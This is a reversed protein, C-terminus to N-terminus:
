RAPQTLAERGAAWPASADFTVGGADVKVGARAFVAEYDPFGDSAFQNRVAESFVTTGTLEDLRAIVEEASWRRDQANCCRAFQELAMDLTQKGGTRERLDLDAALMLAAGAWYVRRYMGGYAIRENARALSTGPATREGLEFGDHMRRWAEETGTAGGRAMLTNQLYTPVGEYLWGDRSVVYPLFLHSMEHTLSWDSEFAELAQNPTVFLHIAPGGGRSVYAWPVPGRGRPTPAVVVQVSGVPFRGYLQVANHAASAIWKIFKEEYAPTGLSVLSVHLVAGPVEIDQLRLRGFAVVGPWNAPTTGVLYVPRGQADTERRWPTSVEVGPPLRFRLEISATGDAARWFWEGISTLMSGGVRRTEPGGTQTSGQAPDLKVAYDICANEPAADLVIKDGDAELARGDMRLSELYFRAGDTEAVLAQPAKGEFCAHVTMRELTPDIAVEYRHTDAWAGLSAAAFAMGTFAACALVRSM